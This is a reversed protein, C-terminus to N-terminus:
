ALHDERDQRCKRVLETDVSCPAPLLLPTFFRGVLGAAVGAPGKAGSSTSGAPAPASNTHERFSDLLSQASRGTNKAAVEAVQKANRLDRLLEEVVKADGPRLRGSARAKELQNITGAVKQYHGKPSYRVEDAIEGRLSDATSGSGIKATHRYLQEVTKQLKVDQVRPRNRATWGNNFPDFIPRSGAQVQHRTMPRVGNLLDVPSLPGVFDHPPEILLARRRIDRAAEDLWGRTGALVAPADAAQGVSALADSVEREIALLEASAAEIELYLKAAMERQIGVSDSTGGQPTM